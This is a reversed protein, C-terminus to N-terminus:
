VMIINNYACTTLTTYIKNTKSNRRKVTETIWHDSNRAVSGSTGPEVGLAVLNESFYHTQFPTWEAEHPCGLLWKSSVTAAETL